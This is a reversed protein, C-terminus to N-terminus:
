HEYLYAVTCNDTNSRAGQQLLVVYITKYVSSGYVLISQPLGGGTFDTTPVKSHEPNLESYAGM